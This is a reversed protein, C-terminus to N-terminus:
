RERACGELAADDGWTFTAKYPYVTDSMGDSCQGARITLGIPRGQMQGAYLLGGDGHKGVATIQAEILIPSPQEPSTYSLRQGAIEFSWFPETGLAQMRRPQASPTPTSTAPSPSASPSRQPEPSAPAAPQEAPKCAVLALLALVAAKRM